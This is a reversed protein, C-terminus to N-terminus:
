CGCEGYFERVVEKGKRSKIKMTGIQQWTEEVQGVQKYDLTIEFDESNWTKIHHAETERESSSLSFSKMEGNISVFANSGYDDVYIYKGSKFDSENNSFYCSCGEIEPPFESFTDIVISADTSSEKAGFSAKNNACSFLLGPLIFLTFSYRNLM